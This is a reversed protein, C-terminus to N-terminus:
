KELFVRESSGAKPFGRPVYEGFLLQPLNKYPRESYPLCVKKKKATKADIQDSKLSFAEIFTVLSM